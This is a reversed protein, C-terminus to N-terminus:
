KLGNVMAEFGKRHAAVTAKPGYLHFTLNGQPTEVVSALLTQDPKPAGVPGMGVGRAYTGNLEVRTVPMGNVKSKKVVAKVPKGGPASFQSQWRDINAQVSGGGGKGFYYVIVQADGAGRAGPVQFQALRMTNEPPQQVWAGLVPAKYDLLAVTRPADAASAAAALMSFLAALFFRFSPTKIM